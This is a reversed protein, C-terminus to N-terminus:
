TNTLKISGLPLGVFSRGNSERSLQFCIQDVRFLKLLHIQFNLRDLQILKKDLTTTDALFLINKLSLFSRHQLSFFLFLVHVLFYYFLSM